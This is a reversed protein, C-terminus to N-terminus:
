RGVADGPPRRQARRRCVRTGGSGAGGTYVVGHAATPPSTFSWQGALQTIWLQAGSTADFARLLGNYNVLFVKGADYGVGSFSYTGTTQSWVIHGDAQDLAYLNGDSTTVFVKGDAILPYSATANTFTTKWRLAFPPNLAADAQVGDHAPDIQYAVAEGSAVSTM